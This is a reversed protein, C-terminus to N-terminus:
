GGQASAQQDSKLHSRNALSHQHWMFFEQLAHVEAIRRALQTASPVGMKDFVRRRRQEITRVSVQLEAAIQKNLKGDYIADSVAREAPTLSRLRRQFNDIKRRIALRRKGEDIVSYLASILATPEIPKPLADWAGRRIAALALGDTPSALALVPPDTARREVFPALEDFSRLEVVWALVHSQETEIPFKSRSVLTGVSAATAGVQAVVTGDNLAVCLEPVIPLIDRNNKHETAM